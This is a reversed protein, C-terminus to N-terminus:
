ASAWASRWPEDGFMPVLQDLWQPYAGEIKIDGAMFAADRSRDGSWLASFTAETATITIDAKEGRPLKGTTVHEVAGNALGIHFALKGEETETVVYLVHLDVGHAKAGSAGKALTDCWDQDFRSM